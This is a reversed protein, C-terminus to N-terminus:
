SAIYIYVPQNKYDFTTSQLNHRKMYKLHKRVIREPIHVDCYVEVKNKMPTPMHGSYPLSHKERSRDIRMGDVLRKTWNSVCRLM